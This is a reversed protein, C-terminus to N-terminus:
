FQQKLSKRYEGPTLGLEKRFARNFSSLSGFGSQEAIHTHSFREDKDRMLLERAYAVRYQNIFDSFSLGFEENIVRSLYTRNTNLKKCLETVRIEPNLYLKNEQLLKLLERKLNAMKTETFVPVVAETEEAEEELNRIIQNQRNGQLGIIFFLASFLGSPVALLLENGLFLGRGLLNAIFSVISAVFFSITLLKVWLLEKGELNSYFNAIRTDYKRVLQYGMGLYVLVQLGFIARSSFFVAAMWQTLVPSQQGPWRNEVLVSQYYISRADPDSILSLSLLMFSLVVAPFFHRVYFKRPSVDCTLLRIYFYYMPYVSLGAFLYVSDLQLYVERFNLFFAAHCVYLVAVLLMFLGLWFRPRNAVFRNTLFVIAWFLTISLPTFVILYRLM